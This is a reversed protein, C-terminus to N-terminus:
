GVVEYAVMGWVARSFGFGSRGLNDARMVGGLGDLM